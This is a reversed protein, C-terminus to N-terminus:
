IWRLTLVFISFLYFNVKLQFWFTFYKTIPSEWQVIYWSILITSTVISNPIAIGYIDCKQAIM